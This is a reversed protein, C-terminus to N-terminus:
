FYYTITGTSEDTDKSLTNALNPSAISLSTSSTSLTLTTYNEGAVSQPTTSLFGSDLLSQFAVETESGNSILYQQGASAVIRLNELVSNRESTLRSQEFAPIAIAALIGIIVVVIMIEVLTFGSLRHYSKM